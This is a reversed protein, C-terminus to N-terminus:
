IRKIYPADPMKYLTPMILPNHEGVTKVNSVLTIRNPSCTMEDLCALVSPMGAQVLRAAVSEMADEGAVKASQCASLVMMFNTACYDKNRELPYSEEQGSSRL